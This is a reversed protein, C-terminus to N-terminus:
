RAGDRQQRKWQLRAVYCHVALYLVTCIGLALFLSHLYHQMPALLDQPNM